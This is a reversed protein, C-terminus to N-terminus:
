KSKEIKEDALPVHCFRMREATATFLGSTGINTGCSTPKKM